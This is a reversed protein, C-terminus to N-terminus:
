ESSEKDATAAPMLEPRELHVGSEQQFAHAVALLDTEQFLRGTFTISRPQRKEAREEMQAPLVVTPHGTLNTIGLDSGSDLYLDIKDFLAAMQRMLMTRLRNARLYEVAPAFHAPRWAGPWRNLGETVNQRTFHDFVTAAEVNLIMTMAWVPLDKPLQIPVLQVGMKQLVERAM